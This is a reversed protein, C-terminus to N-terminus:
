NGIAECVVNAGDRLARASRESRGTMSILLSLLASLFLRRPLDGDIQRVWHGAPILVLCQFIRPSEASISFPIKSFCSFKRSSDNECFKISLWDGRYIVFNRFNTLWVVFQYRLPTVSRVTIQTTSEIGPSLMCHYIKILNSKVNQDFFLIQM